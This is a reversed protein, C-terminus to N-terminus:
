TRSPGTLMSGGVGVRGEEEESGERERRALGIEEERDKGLRSSGLEAAYREWVGDSLGREVEGDADLEGVFDRRASLPLPREEETLMSALRAAM